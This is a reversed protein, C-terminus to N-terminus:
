RSSSRVQLQQGDGPGDQGVRDNEDEILGRAAHVGTGLDEDLLRHGTQHFASRAEDDSV